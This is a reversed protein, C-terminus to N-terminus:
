LQAKSWDIPTSFTGRFRAEAAALLGAPLQSKRVYKRGIGPWMIHGPRDGMRMWTFWNLETSWMMRHDVSTKRRDELEARSVMYRYVANDVRRAGDTPRVYSVREDYEVVADDGSFTWPLVYPRLKDSEGVFGPPAIAGEPAYIAEGLATRFHVVKDTAATYPNTFSDIVADSKLDTFLIVGRYMTHWQGGARPRFERLRVAQYRMLPKSLQGEVVGDVRGVIYEYTPLGSTDGFIRAIAEVNERPDTFDIRDRPRSAATITPSAIAAGAFGGLISRRGVM